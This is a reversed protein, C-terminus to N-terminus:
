KDHANRSFDLYGEKDDESVMKYEHIPLVFNNTPSLRIKRASIGNLEINLSPLENIYKKYLIELNKYREPEEDANFTLGQYM